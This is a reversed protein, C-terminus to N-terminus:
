VEGTEQRFLRSRGIPLCLVMVGAALCLTVALGGELGYNGGNWLVAGPEPVAVFPSPGAPIGSVRVGFLNGQAFNWFSHVACAGWLNGSRLTILSALAGFLFTNFVGLPTVGANPLHLLAFGASNVVVAVWPKQSRLLVGQFYGRCLIEEGAGQLLFGGLYLLWGGVSFSESVTLRLAGAAACIGVAGALLGVGLPAFAAYEWARRRPGVVQEPGLGRVFRSFLLVGVTMPLTAYLAIPIVAAQLDGGAIGCVTLAIGQVIGAALQGVLALTLFLLTEWALTRRRGANRLALRDKERMSSGETQM